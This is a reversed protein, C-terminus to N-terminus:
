NSATAATWKVSNFASLDSGGAYSIASQLSQKIEKLKEVLTLPNLEMEIKTGEVHNREGKQAFSASGWYEKKGHKNIPAPSDSCNAFISGAMVMTAGAVLAKAIDGNHRIGGDAIVPLPSSKCVELLTSFMPTHFGTELFSTCVKGPGIGCKIADAGWETLNEAAQVTAINGAIIFAKPCTKRVFKIMQKVLLHHGHAVDITVYDPKRERSLLELWEQSENGVGVSCSAYPLGRCVDRTFMHNRVSSDGFRHMIYFYNNKALYDVWEDGITTVMNAPIVPLAFRRGGFEVSTDAYSRTALESYNPILSIDSYELANM